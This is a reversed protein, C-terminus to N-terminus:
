LKIIELANKFHPNQATALWEFALMEVSAPTAGAKTLRQVAIEKDQIKRTGIADILLTIQYGHKILSLATQMVCVHAECGSIALHRVGKPLKNILGDQCGDFHVKHFTRDCFESIDPANHGLSRPSQETGIIPVKLLKAIKAIRICQNLVENGQHISPMLRDQLDILILASNDPTVQM